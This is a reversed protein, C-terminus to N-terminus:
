AAPRSVSRDRGAQRRPDDSAHRALLVCGGLTLAFGLVAVPWTGARVRDGLWVLGIVAPVVTEVTFTIAATTTVSGRRLAFGYAVLAIVAFAALAWVVPDLLLRWREPAVVVVRAAIGTGGFGLGAVVALLAAGTGGPIRLAAVGLLGVPVVTALLLTPGGGTLAEAGGERASAALAVLGAGVGVLALVEPRTLRVDLFARALLATVAVSSAIASEVVFLPLSRLAVVSAVFGVADLLLGLVYLRAAGARRVGVAQLVTGAGYCLAAAFAGALGPVM